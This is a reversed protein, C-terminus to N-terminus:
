LGVEIKGRNQCHTNLSSLPCQDQEQNITLSRPLCQSGPQALDKCFVRGHATSNAREEGVKGGQGWRGGVIARNRAPFKSQVLGSVEQGLAAM